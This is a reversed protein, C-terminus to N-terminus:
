AGLGGKRRLLRVLGDLRGLIPGGGANQTVSLEDGLNRVVEYTTGYFSRDATRRELEEMALDASDGSLFGALTLDAMAWSDNRGLRIQQDIERYAGKLEHVNAFAGFGYHADTAYVVPLPRPWEIPPGQVSIEFDIDMIDSHVIHSETGHIPIPNTM